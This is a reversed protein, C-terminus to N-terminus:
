FYKLKISCWVTSVVIVKWNDESKGGVKKNKNKIHSVNGLQLLLFIQTNIFMFQNPFDEMHSQWTVHKDIINSFAPECFIYDLLVKM